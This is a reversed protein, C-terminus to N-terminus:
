VITTLKQLTQHQYLNTQNAGAIMHVVVHPHRKRWASGYSLNGSSQSLLNNNITNLNNMATTPSVISGNTSGKNSISLNNLNNNLVNNTIHSSSSIIHNNNLQNQIDTLIDKLVYKENLVTSSIYAGSSLFRNYVILAAVIAGFVLGALLYILEM